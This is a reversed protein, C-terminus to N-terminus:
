RINGSGTLDLGLARKIDTILNPEPTAKPEAEPHKGSPGAHTYARSYIVPLNPRLRKAKEALQFGNLDGSLVVGTYMIDIEQPSTLLELAEESTAVEFVTLGQQKLADSVAARADFEAEIVLVSKGAANPEGSPRLLGAVVALLEQLRVPKTLATIAGFRVATRLYLENAAAGSMAIIPLNPAAEQMARIMAVGEGDPMVIDTVVLDPCNNRFEALGEVGSSALRVKHGERRLARSLANRTLLDDDVVLIEAM